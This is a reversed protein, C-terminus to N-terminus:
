YRGNRLLHLAGEPPHWRTHMAGTIEQFWWVDEDTQQCRLLRGCSARTLRMGPEFKGPQQKLTSLVGNVARKVEGVGVVGGGRAGRSAVMVEAM